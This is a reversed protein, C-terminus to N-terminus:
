GVIGSKSGNFFSRRSLVALPVVWIGGVARELVM